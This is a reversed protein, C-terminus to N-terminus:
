YGDEVMSDGFASRKSRPSRRNNLGSAPGKRKFNTKRLVKSQHGNHNVQSAMKLHQAKAKAKGKGRVFSKNPVLDPNVNDESGPSGNFKVNNSGPGGETVTVDEGDDDSFDMATIQFGNAM